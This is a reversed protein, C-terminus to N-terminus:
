QTPDMLKGVFLINGTSRQQIIFVFPHDARFIDTEEPIGELLNVDTVASAETGEENVEIFAQHILGLHKVSSLNLDFQQLAKNM